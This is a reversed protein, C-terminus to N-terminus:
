RVIASGSATAGPNSFGSWAAIPQNIRGPPCLLAKPGLPIARTPLDQGILPVELKATHGSTATPSRSV